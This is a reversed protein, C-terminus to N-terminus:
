HLCTEGPDWGFAVKEESVEKGNKRKILIGKLVKADPDLTYFNGKVVFEGKFEYSIGNTIKSVFGIRGDKINIQPVDVYDHMDCNDKAGKDTDDLWILGKPPVLEGFREDDPDVDLNKNYISFIYLNEFGKQGNLFYYRGEPDFKDPDSEDQKPASLKEEEFDIPLVSDPDSIDFKVKGVQQSATPTIEGGLFFQYAAVWALGFVFAFFGVTYRFINQKIKRNGFRMLRKSAGRIGRLSLTRM